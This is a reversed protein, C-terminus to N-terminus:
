SIYNYLIFIEQFIKFNCIHYAFFIIFIDACSYCFGIRSCHTLAILTFHEQTVFAYIGRFFTQKVLLACIERVWRLMQRERLGSNRHTTLHRFIFKRFRKM